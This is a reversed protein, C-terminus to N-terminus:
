LPYIQFAPNLGWHCSGDGACKKMIVFSFKGIRVIEKTIM